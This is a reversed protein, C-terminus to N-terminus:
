DLFDILKKTGGFGVQRRIETNGAEIIYTPVKTVNYKRKEVVHRDFDYKIIEYSDLIRKLSVNQQMEKRAVKCPLCWDASFIILKPRPESSMLFDIKSPDKAFGILTYASLYLSLAACVAYYKNM